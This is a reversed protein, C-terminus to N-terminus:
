KFYVSTDIPQDTLQTYTGNEDKGVLVLMNGFAAYDPVDALPRTFPGPFVPGPNIDIDKASAVKYFAARDADKGAKKLIAQVAQDSAYGYLGFESVPVGAAESAKQYKKNEPGDSDAPGFTSVVYLPVGAEAYASKIDPTIISQATVLDFTAGSAQYAQLFATHDPPALYGIYAGEVGAAQARAVIPLFDTQGASPKLDGGVVEAGLKSAAAETSSRMVNVDMAASGIATIKKDDLEKVLYEFAGVAYPAGTATLALTAKGADATDIPISPMYAVKASAFSQAYVAGQLTMATVGTISPDSVMQQVCATAGDATGDDNCSVVELDRGDVGGADNIEKVGANIGDLTTGFDLGPVRTYVYGVKYTDSGGAGSGTDSGCAAVTSLCVVALGSGVVTRLGHGRSSVM